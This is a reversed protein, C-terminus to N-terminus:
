ISVECDVFDFPALSFGFVSFEAHTKKENVNNNYGYVHRQHYRLSNALSVICIRRPLLFIFRFSINGKQWPHFMFFYGNKHETMEMKEQARKRNLM